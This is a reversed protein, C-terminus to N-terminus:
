MQRVPLSLLPSQHFVLPVDPDSLELHQWYSLCSEIM